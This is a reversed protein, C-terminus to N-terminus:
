SINEPDVGMLKAVENLADPALERMLQLFNQNILRSARRLLLQAPNGPEAEDLYDCVMNIARLADDRSL